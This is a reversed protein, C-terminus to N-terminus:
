LEFDFVRVPRDGAKRAQKASFKTNVEPGAGAVWWPGGRVLDCGRNFLWWKASGPVGPVRRTRYRAHMLASYSTM